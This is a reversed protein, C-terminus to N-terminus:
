KKRPLFGVGWKEKFGEMDVQMNDGWVPGPHRDTTYFNEKHKVQKSRYYGYHIIHIDEVVKREPRFNIYSPIRPCHFNPTSKKEYFANEIPFIYDVYSDAKALSIEKGANENTDYKLRYNFANYWLNYKPFTIISKGDYNELLNVFKPIDMMKVIEDVDTHIVFTAGLKKAEELLKQRDGWEDRQYFNDVKKNILLTVLDDREFAKAVNLTEEPPNDGLMIVHDCFSLMTELQLPLLDTENFFPFTGIIKVM